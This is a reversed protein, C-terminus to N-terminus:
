QWGAREVMLRAFNRALKQIQVVIYKECDLQKNQVFFREDWDLMAIDKNAAPNLNVSNEWFVGGVNFFRRHSEAIMYEIDAKNLQSSLVYVDAPSNFVVDDLYAKIDSYLEQYSRGAIYINNFGKIVSPHNMVYISDSKVKQTYDKNCLYRILEQQFTTKGTRDDGILLYVWKSLM